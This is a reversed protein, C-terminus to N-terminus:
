SSKLLQLKDNKFFDFIDVCKRNKLRKANKTKIREVVKKTRLIKCGTMKRRIKRKIDDLMEDSVDVIRHKM